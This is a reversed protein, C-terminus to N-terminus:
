CMNRAPDIIKRGGHEAFALAMSYFFAPGVNFLHCDLLSAGLLGLLSLAIFGNLLTRNEKRFFLVVTQARHIGYAVLGVLGCSAVIQIFTNHWRAPFFREFQELEAWDVQNAETFFSVGFVPNQLFQDWGTSYLTERGTSSLGSAVMNKFLLLLAERYYWIGTLTVAVTLAFCVGNQLRNKGKWMVLATCMIYLVVLTLIAGRSNSFVVAVAFIAGIIHYLFAYRQSKAAYYFSFPIMIALLPGINNEIGWGTYIKGDAIVGDVIVDGVLYIYGLEAVLVCGVMMGIWAFYDKPAKEWYVAGSFFWYLGAISAFQVVAFLLNRKFVDGYAESGIGSLLYAGGLLVFGLWLRRPATFFRRRLAKDFSFRIVLALLVLLLMGLIITGGNEPYFISDPNRGPNNEVSPSIYGCIFFPIVPLCDRCFLIVYVTVAIIATYVVMEMAFVNALLTLAAALIMFYPSYLFTNIGGIWPNAERSSLFRGEVGNWESSDMM